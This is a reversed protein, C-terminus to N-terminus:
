QTTHTHWCRGHPLCGPCVLGDVPWAVAVEWTVYLEPEAGCVGVSCRNSVCVIVVCRWLKSIGHLKGSLEIVAAWCCIIKTGEKKNTPPISKMVEDKFMQSRCQCGFYVNMLQGLEDWLQRCKDTMPTGQSKWVILRPDDLFQETILTLMRAGNSDRARLM